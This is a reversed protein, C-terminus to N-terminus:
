NKKIAAYNRLNHNNLDKGIAKGNILLENTLRSLLLGKEKKSLVSISEENLIKQSQKILSEFEETFDPNIITLLDIIDGKSLFEPKSKPPFEIVPIKDNLILNLYLNYLSLKYHFESSKSYNMLRTVQHNELCEIPLVNM